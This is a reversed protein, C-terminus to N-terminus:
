VPDPGVVFMNKVHGLFKKAFLHKTLMRRPGSSPVSSLTEFSVRSSRAAQCLLCTTGRPATNTVTPFTGSGANVLRTSDKARAQPATSGDFGLPVDM